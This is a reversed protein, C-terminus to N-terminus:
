PKSSTVTGGLAAQIDDVVDESQTAVRWNPGTVWWVYPPDDSKELAPFRTPEELVHATARGDGLECLSVGIENPPSVYGRLADDCSWEDDHEELDDVLEDASDYSRAERPDAETCGALVLLLVACTMLQINMAVQGQRTKNAAM